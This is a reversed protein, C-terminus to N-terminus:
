SSSWEMQADQRAIRRGQRNVAARLPAGARPATVLVTEAVNRAPPRAHGAQRGAHGCNRSMYTTALTSALDIEGAM